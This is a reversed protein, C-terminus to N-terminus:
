VVKQTLLGIMEDVLAVHRNKAYWLHMEESTVEYNYDSSKKKELFWNQVVEPRPGWNWLPSFNNLDVAILKPISRGGNTLFNDMLELNDDRLVLKLEVGMADAMKKLPVLNQGVDGCWAEVIMLWGMKNQESKLQDFVSLQETNLKFIKGWKKIRQSAMKTHSVFAESQNPGTTKGDEVLKELMTIYGDYSMASNWNKELLDQM